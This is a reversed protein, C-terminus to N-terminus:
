PEKEEHHGGPAFIGPTVNTVHYGPKDGSEYLLTHAQEIIWRVYVDATGGGSVKRLEELQDPTFRLSVVEERTEGFKPKPGRKAM